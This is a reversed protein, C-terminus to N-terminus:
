GLHQRQVIWEAAGRLDQATHTPIPGGTAHLHALSERGYGTMVLVSPLGLRDALLMDSVKDGVVFSHEMDVQREFAAQQILGPAPKRCLCARRYPFRGDKPHHPCYYFADVGGGDAEILQILRQHSAEVLEETADGRAVRAQNSVVIRLYGADSLRKLAEVAGPIPRMMDPRQISGVEENITGDRDLFVAPQRRVSEETASTSRTLIAEAAAVVQEVDLGQMCRHDIPCHRYRCPSCAPPNYLVQHGFGLPGTRSPDTPGFLAICPTRLASALHMTGTDNTLLLACRSLLGTLETLTTRGGLDVVTGRMQERIARTVSAEGASGFLLITAGLRDALLDAAAAFRDVPWRKATGYAAGPAVGIFLAHAPLGSDALLKEGEAISGSSLLCETPRLWTDWKLARLLGLYVDAQHLPM